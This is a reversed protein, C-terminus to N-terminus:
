LRLPSGGLFGEMAADAVDSDSDCTVSASESEDLPTPSRSGERAGNALHMWVYLPPLWALSGGTAGAGSASPPLPASSLGLPSVVSVTSLMGPCVYPSM